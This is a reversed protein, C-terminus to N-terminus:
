VKEYSTVDFVLTEEKFYEIGLDDLYHLKIQIPLAGATKPQMSQNDIIIQSEEDIQDPVGTLRCDANGEITLTIENARREGTNELILTFRSFRGQHLEGVPNIKVKIDPRTHRYLSICDKKGTLIYFGNQSIAACNIEEHIEDTRTIKANDILSVGSSRSFALIYQGNIFLPSIQIKFVDPIILDHHLNMEGNLNFIKIQGNEFSMLLYRDNGSIICELPTQELSYEMLTEQNEINIRKLIRDRTMVFIDKSFNTGTINVIGSQLDRLWIKQGQPDIISLHGSYDGIAAVNSGPLILLSAVGDNIRISWLKEGDKKLYLIQGDWTGAMIIGEKDSHAIASIPSRLNMQWLLEKPGFCYLFGDWSGIIVRDDMTNMRFAKGEIHDRYILQRSLSYVYVNRNEDIILSLNSKGFMTANKVPGSIKEHWCVIFNKKNLSSANISEMREMFGKLGPYDPDVARIQKILSKAKLPNTEITIDIEKLLAELKQRKEMENNVDNIRQKLKDLGPYNTNKQEIQQVILLANSPDTETLEEAQNFQQKLGKEKEIKQRIKIECESAQDKPMKLMKALFDLKQRDDDSIEGCSLIEELACLYPLFASDSLADKMIKSTSYLFETLAISVKSEEGFDMRHGCNYSIYETRGDTKRNLFFVTLRGCGKCECCLLLPYLDIFGTNKDTTHNYYYLKDPIIEEDSKLTENKIKINTGLAEFYKNLWTGDMQQTHSQLCILDYDTLFSLDSLLIEIAPYLVNVRDQYDNMSPLMAGQSGWGEASNCYQIFLQIIDHNTIPQKIRDKLSLWSEIGACAKIIANEEHKIKYYFRYIDHIIGSSPDPLNKLIANLAALWNILIPQSLDKLSKEVEANKISDNIFSHHYQAIALASIYKVISEVVSKLGYHFQAMQELEVKVCMKKSYASSIPFPYENTVKELTRRSEPIIKLLKLGEIIRPLYDSVEEPKIRIATSAGLCSRWDPKSVRFEEWSISILIPIFQKCSEHARIVESTVEPSKISDPSIILVIAKSDDIANGTQILHALGPVCDREYYWTTYGANELGQATGIAVKEDESVHSIFIDKM